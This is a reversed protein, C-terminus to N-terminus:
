DSLSPTSGCGPPIADRDFRRELVRRVARLAPRFVAAAALTAAAVQWASSRGLVTGLFVSVAAYVALVVVSVCAYGVSRLIILDVDFLRYRLVAAGLAVTMASLRSALYGPRDTVCEVLLHGRSALADAASRRVGGVQAAPAGGRGCLPVAGGAVGAGRGRFPVAADWRRRHTGPRAALGRRLPQARRHARQGVVPQVVLRRRLGVYRGGRGWSSGGGGIHCSGPPTYLLALVWMLAGPCWSVLGVWQAVEGGTWGEEVARLGWGIALESTVAGQVGFMCFIWGVPHHALRSVILAGVAALMVEYIAFFLSDYSSKLGWPLVVAGVEAIVTLVLFASALLGPRSVRM